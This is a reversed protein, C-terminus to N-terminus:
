GRIKILKRTQIWIINYGRCELGRLQGLVLVVQSPVRNISQMFVTLIYTEIM